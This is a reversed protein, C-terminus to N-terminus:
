SKPLVPATEASIGRAALLRLRQVEQVQELQLDTAAAIVGLLKHAPNCPLPLGHLREWIRIRESPNNVISAQGALAELRRQQMEEQERVLRAHRDSISEGIRSQTRFLPGSRESKFIMFQGKLREEV